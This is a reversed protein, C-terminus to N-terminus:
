KKIFYINDLANLVKVKDNDTLNTYDAFLVDNPWGYVLYKDQKLWNKYPISEVSTAEGILNYYIFYIIFM